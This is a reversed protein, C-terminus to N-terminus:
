TPLMPWIFRTQERWATCVMVFHWVLDPLPRPSRLKKGRLITRKRHLKRWHYKLAYDLASHPPNHNIWSEAFNHSKLYKKPFINKLENYNQWIKFFEWDGVCRVLIHELAERQSTPDWLFCNLYSFVVSERHLIIHQLQKLSWATSTCSLSSLSVLMFFSSILANAKPCYISKM